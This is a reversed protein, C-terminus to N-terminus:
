METPVEGIREETAIPDPVTEDGGKTLLIRPDSVAIDTAGASELSKGAAELGESSVEDQM